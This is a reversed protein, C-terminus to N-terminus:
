CFDFLYMGACWQTYYVPEFPMKQDNQQCSKENMWENMRKQVRVLSCAKGGQVCGQEGGEKGVFLLIEEIAQRGAQRNCNHMDAKSWPPFKSWVLVPGQCCVVTRTQNKNPEASWTQANVPPWTHTHNQQRQNRTQNQSKKPPANTTPM